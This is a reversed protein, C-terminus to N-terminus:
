RKYSIEGSSVPKGSQGQYFTVRYVESLIMLHRSNDIIDDVGDDDYERSNAEMMKENIM